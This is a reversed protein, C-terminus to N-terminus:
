VFENVIQKAVLKGPSENNTNNYFYYMSNITFDRTKEDIEGNDGVQINRIDLSFPEGEYIININYLTEKTTSLVHERWDKNNQKCIQLNWTSISALRILTNVIAKAYTSIFDIDKSEVGM